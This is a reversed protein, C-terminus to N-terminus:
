RNGYGSRASDPLFTMNGDMPKRGFVKEYNTMHPALTARQIGNLTVLGYRCSEICNHVVAGGNVAFCHVDEVELNYVNEKGASEITSWSILGSKQIIKENGDCRVIKIAFDLVNRFMHKIIVAANNVYKIQQHGQNLQTGHKEVLQSMPMMIQQIEIGSKLSYEQKRFLKKLWSGGEQRIWTYGAINRAMFSGLIVSPIILDIAMKMTSMSSIQSSEMTINGCSVIFAFEKKRFINGAYIIASEMLNKFQQRYSKQKWGASVILDSANLEQIQKWGQNTLVQHDPTARISLGSSFKLEVIDAMTRTKRCHYYRKWGEPTWIEGETGVLSMICSEGERTLVKTNGSLCHDEVKDSVDEAREVREDHIASPITRILNQCRPDIQLWPFGDPATSLYERMKLWGPIRANNAKQMIIRDGLGAQILQQIVEGGNETEVRKGWIEPSASMYMYKEDSPCMSLIKEALEKPSLRSGYYERYIFIRGMPTIEYWLVCAPDAFGWDLSLIKMTYSDPRREHKLVHKNEDWEEFYTGEPQDWKGEALAAYKKPSIKKLDLLRERYGPDNEMIAPNDELSAPIFGLTKKTEKDVWRSSIKAPAIYRKKVWDNGINGPNSASRIQVKMGPITSRTRTGALYNFQFQTFHTLEDFGMDQYENTQGSWSIRGRYRTLVIHYPPVTICHVKGKYKISHPLFTKGNATSRIQTDWNKKCISIYWIERKNGDKYFSKMYSKSVATFGCKFALEMFDDKLRVSSTVFTARKQPVYWTGDGEILSDLLLLLHERDAELMDRPIFKNYCDGFQFLYDRLALNCFDRSKKCMYVNIGCSLLLDTIIKKGREKHQSIRITGNKETSGESLFWGMFSFWSKSDFSIKKGNNGRSYFLINKTPKSGIWNAWQPIKCSPPLDKAEVSFLDKRKEGTIWMNHNPTVCFAVGGTQFHTIMDGDFDYSPSATIPKYEMNRTKPNLTAAMMGIKADQVKIWGDKILIETDPHFCQYQYVDGDSDCFGFFEISNNPFKWFKKNENYVAGLKNYMEKSKLILSGELERFTRRFLIGTSNPYQLRRIAAWCLLATSKGPGVQGGFFLDDIDSNVFMAQKPFLNFKIEGDVIQIIPRDYM